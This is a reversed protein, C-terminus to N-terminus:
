YIDGNEKQIRPRYMLMTHVFLKFFGSSLQKRYKNAILLYDKEQIISREVLSDIDGNAFAEKVNIFEVKPISNHYLETLCEDMIQRITQKDM